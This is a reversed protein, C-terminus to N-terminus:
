DWKISVPTGCLKTSELAADAMKMVACASEGDSIPSSKTIISGIFEDIETALAEKDDLEIQYPLGYRYELQARGAVVPDKKVSVGSDYQTLVGKDLTDDWCIMRESGTILVKRQKVPALWHSAIHVNLGSKYFFNLYAQSPLNGLINAHSVASVLNPREGFLHHAIAIDHIALDYIVDVDTKFIGLGSRMSDYYLIKGLSNSSVIKKLKKFAQTYVFTHDVLLVKQKERALDTLLRSQSANLTIPKTVLVHKGAGIALKVLDFHTAAPTSIVVADIESSKILIFPDDSILVDPYLVNAKQLNDANVDCISVLMSAKNSHINRAINPGWHGFGIVGIRLKMEDM